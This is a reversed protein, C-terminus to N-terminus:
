SRAFHERLLQIGGAYAKCLLAKSRHVEAGTQATFEGVWCVRSRGRALQVVTVTSVYDDIRYPNPELIEYSFTMAQPQWALLRETVRVGSPMEVTRLCGVGQGEVSLVKLRAWRDIHDFAGLTNWVADAAVDLEEIVEVRHRESAMAIDGAQM